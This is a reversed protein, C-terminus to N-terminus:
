PYTSMMKEDKDLFREVDTLEYFLQTKATCYPTFDYKKLLRSGVIITPTHALNELTTVYEKLKPLQISLSLSIGIVDPKWKQANYVAYELPLNAGLFQVDWNAERFLSSIIKIGIYHEEGELCFFLGKKRNASSTEGMKDFCYRSLAFDCIATALHEQAVTIENEEWMQGIYHM